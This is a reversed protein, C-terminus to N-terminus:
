AKDGHESNLIREYVQTMSRTYREVSFSELMHQRAREGMSTRLGPDRILRLLAETFAKEDGPDVLFAMDASELLEEYFPLRWTVIPLGAAAAEMVVNPLGEDTSAFCFIDFARLLKDVQPVEGLFTVHHNLGLKCTLEEYEKKLPGDGVLILHIKTEFQVLSAMYRILSDFNKLPYMRGISVLWTSDTPLGYTLALESRAASRDTFVDEVANQVCFLGPKENNIIHTIKEATQRSNTLIADTFMLLFRSDPAKEHFTEFTNRIGVLTKVGLWKGALVAYIGAFKHWGQILDPKFEQAIKLIQFLRFIRNKRQPVRLISIGLAEIPKEWYDGPHLTIVLPEYKARDINSLWLYLQREAGGVVLQGAIILIRIKHNTDAM